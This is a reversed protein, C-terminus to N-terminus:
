NTPGQYGDPVFVTGVQEAPKFFLWDICCHCLHVHTSGWCWLAVLLWFSHLAREISGQDLSHTLSNVAESEICANKLKSFASCAHRLQSCHVAHEPVAAAGKQFGSSQGNDATVNCRCHETLRSHSPRCEQQLDHKLILTHLLNSQAALM